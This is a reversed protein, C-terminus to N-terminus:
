DSTFLMCCFWPSIWSDLQHTSKSSFWPLVCEPPFPHLLSMLIFLSIALIHVEVPQLSALWWILYVSLAPALLAKSESQSVLLMSVGEFSLDHSVIDENVKSSVSINFCYGELFSLSHFECFAENRSQSYLFNGKSVGTSACHNMWIYSRGNLLRNCSSLSHYKCQLYSMVSGIGWYRGQGQWSQTLHCCVQKAM